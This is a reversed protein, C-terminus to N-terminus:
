RVVQLKVVGSGGGHELRALYGGSGVERGARDRGDWVVRCPGATQQGDVLVRVLRGAADFVALRVHGAVPLVFSLTTRPNFPNPTAGLAGVAGAVPVGDDVATAAPFLDVIAGEVVTLGYPMEQPLKYWGNYAGGWGFNLHFDDDTNWGDVVLNHGMSWAPDVVALHAPRADRMNAALATYLDPDADTLLRCDYGFRVYADFAQDVGYTGSGAASYVQRAAIGCAFVLAAKDTDTPPTGANWHERVTELHSNLTDFDPFGYPAAADPVWFYNGAYAHWYRDGSDLKSGPLIRRHDLIMAMAVSPCGALSRAGGHAVDLPCFANYPASQTWNGALWGGTPTTGAPPWQEFRVASEPRSGVLLQEWQTHHAATVSPAVLARAALRSALDAAALRALPSDALGERPCTANTAHAIIPPLDTDATVVVYGAPAFGFVHAVVRGGAVIEQQWAITADGSAATGLWTEAVVHAASAAVPTATAPHGFSIVAMLAAVALLSASSARRIARLSGDRFAM